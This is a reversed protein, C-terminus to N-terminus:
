GSPTAGNWVYPVKGVYTIAAAAVQRGLESGGSGTSATLTAAVTKPKLAPSLQVEWLNKPIPQGKIAAKLVDAIPTRNVGAVILLVGATALVLSM